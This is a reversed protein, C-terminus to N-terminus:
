KYESLNVRHNPLDEINMIDSCDGLEIDIHDKLQTKLGANTLSLRYECDDSFIPDKQFVNFHFKQSNLTAKDVESGRNYLVESCHLLLNRDIALLSTKVRRILIKPQHIRVLCDYGSQSALILVREPTIYPQAACWAYVHNSSGINYPHGKMHFMGKGDNPDGLVADEWRRYSELSGFRMSGMTVFKEAWCREMVKVLVLPPPYTSHEVGDKIITGSQTRM